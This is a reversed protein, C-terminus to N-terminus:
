TKPWRRLPAWGNRRCPGTAVMALALWGLPLANHRVREGTADSNRGWLVMWAAAIGSPVANVLGTEWDTLGFSKVLQPMSLALSTSADLGAYVLAMILVYRHHAHAVRQCRMSRSRVKQEDSDSMGPFRHRRSAHM